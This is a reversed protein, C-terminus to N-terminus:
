RRARGENLPEGGIFRGLQAYWREVTAPPLYRVAPRAQLEQRSPPQMWQELLIATPVMWTGAEKTRRVLGPIRAMDACHAVGIGFLGGSAPGKRLCDPDALAQVYGDLHDIARQRAGLAHVLGVDESVHGQFSI